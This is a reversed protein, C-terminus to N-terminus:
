CKRKFIIQLFVVYSLIYRDETKGLNANLGANAPEKINDGSAQTEHNAVYPVAVRTATKRRKTGVM